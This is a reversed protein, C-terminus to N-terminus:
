DEKMSIVTCEVGLDDNLSCQIVHGDVIATISMEEVPMMQCAKGILGALVEHAELEEPDEYDESYKM